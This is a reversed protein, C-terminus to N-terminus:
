DESENTNQEWSIQKIEAMGEYELQPCLIGLTMKPLEGVKAHLNIEYVGEIINGDNDVVRITPMASEDVNTPYDIIIKLRRLTMVEM